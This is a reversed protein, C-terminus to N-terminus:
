DFNKKKLFRLRNIEQSKKLIKWNFLKKGEKGLDFSLTM